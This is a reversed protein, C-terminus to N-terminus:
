RTIEIYEAAVIRTHPNKSIVEQRVGKTGFWIGLFKFRPVRHLVQVLTDYVVITSHLTDRSCRADLELWNSRYHWQKTTDSLAITSVNYHSSTLVKSTSQVRRLRLGLEEILEADHSRYEKLEDLELKLVGISVASLSDRVNYRRVSDLLIHQNGQLRESRARQDKWMVYLAGGAVALGLILYNKIRDIM